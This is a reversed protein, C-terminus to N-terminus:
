ENLKIEPTIPYAPISLCYKSNCGWRMSGQKPKQSNAWVRNRNTLYIDSFTWLLTNACCIGNDHTFVVCHKRKRNEFFIFGYKTRKQYYNFFANLFSVTHHPNPYSGGRAVPLPHHSGCIVWWIEFKPFKLRLNTCPWMWDTSAITAAFHPCPVQGLVLLYELYFIFLIFYFVQNVECLLKKM